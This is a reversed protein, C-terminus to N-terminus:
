TLSSPPNNYNLDCPFTRSNYKISTVDTKIEGMLMINYKGDVPSVNEKFVMKDDFCPQSVKEENAENNVMNEFRIDEEISTLQFM